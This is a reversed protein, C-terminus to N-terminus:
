LVSVTLYLDGLPFTLTGKDLLQRALTLARDATLGFFILQGAYRAIQVERESWLRLCWRGSGPPDNLAHIRGTATWFNLQRYTIAAAHCAEPATLGDRPADTDANIPTVSAISM